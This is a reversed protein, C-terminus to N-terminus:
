VADVPSRKVTWLDVLDRVTNVYDDLDTPKVVYDNAGLEIARQKDVPNESSTFVVVPPRAEARYGELIEFGSFKPLNLDLIILHPEFNYEKLTRLAQEGDYAVIVDATASCRRIGERVLLVDGPNDEVLLVHLLSSRM